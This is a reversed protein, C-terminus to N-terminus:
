LREAKRCNREENYPLGRKSDIEEPANEYVLGVIESGLSGDM